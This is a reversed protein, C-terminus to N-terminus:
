AHETSGGADSPSALPVGLTIECGEGPASWLSFRFNDGYHLALRSRTSKLGVRNEASHRVAELDFGCGNDRVRAMLMAGNAWLTIEVGGGEVRSELGHVIANEVLPQLIMCPLSVRSMDGISHEDVTVTFRVRDGFREKQINIYHRLLGIEDQLPILQESKRLTYRLLESLDRTLGSAKVAGELYAMQSIVNLTNFLFHPNVQSQLLKLGSEHLAKELSAKALQEQVLSLRSKDLEHQRRKSEAQNIIARAISMTAEAVTYLRSKPEIPLDSVARQLVSVDLGYRESLAVTEGLLVERDATSLMIEGCKLFGAVRGHRQIPVIISAINHCCSFFHPRVSDGVQTYVERFFKRCHGGGSAEVMAACFSARNGTQFLYEGEHNLLSINVELVQSLHDLVSQLAGLDFFEDSLGSFYPEPGYAAADLIDERTVDGEPPQALSVGKGSMFNAYWPKFEDNERGCPSLPYYIYIVLVRLDEASNNSVVHRAHPRIHFYSGPTIPYHVGDVVQEGHGSVVYLVQEERRHSHEPQSSFPYFTILGATVRSMTREDPETLWIAEGWPFKQQNYCNAEALARSDGFLQLSFVKDM